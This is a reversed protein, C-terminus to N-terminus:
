ASEEETLSVKVVLKNGKIAVVEVKEGKSIEGRGGSQASWEEGRVKVRGYSGEKIASVLIGPKGILANINTRSDGYTVDSFNYKKLLIRIILFSIVSVVLGILCQTVFSFGIFFLLAAAFSGIAFAVFFFLGPTSVEAFLFLIGVLLWFM